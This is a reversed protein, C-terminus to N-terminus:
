WCYFATNIPMFYFNPLSGMCQNYGIYLLVMQMWLILWINHKHDFNLQLSYLCIKTRIANKLLDYILDIFLKMLNFKNLISPFLWRNKFFIETDFFNYYKRLKRWFIYVLLKTHQLKSLESPVVCGLLSSSNSTYATTCTISLVQTRHSYHFGLLMRQNHSRNFTLAPPYHLSGLPGCVCSGTQKVKQM